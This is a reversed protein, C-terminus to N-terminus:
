MGGDDETESEDYEDYEYTQEFDAPFSDWLARAGPVCHICPSTFAEIAAREEATEPDPLEVIREGPKRPDDAEYANELYRASLLVAKCSPDAHRVRTRRNLWYPM